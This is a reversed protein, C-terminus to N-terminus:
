LDHFQWADEFYNAAIAPNVLEMPIRVPERLTNAGNTEILKFYQGYGTNTQLRGDAPAYTIIPNKRHQLLVAKAESINIYGDDKAHRPVLQEEGHANTKRKWMRSDYELGDSDSQLEYDHM